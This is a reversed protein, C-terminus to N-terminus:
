RKEQADHLRRVVTSCLGMLMTPVRLALRQLEEKSIRLVECNRLARVTAMRPEGTIFGIEGVIEGAGIRGLLEEGGGAAVRYAGLMGSALIYISDSNEGQSFLCSGGPASFWACAAAISRLDQVAMAPFVRRLLLVIRQAIADEVSEAPQAAAATAAESLEFLTRAEPLASRAKDRNSQALGAVRSDIALNEVVAIM